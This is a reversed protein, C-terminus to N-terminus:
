NSDPLSTGSISISTKSFDMDVSSSTKPPVYNAFLDHYDELITNEAKAVGLHCFHLGDSRQPLPTYRPSFKLYVFSLFLKGRASLSIRAEKQHPLITQQATEM